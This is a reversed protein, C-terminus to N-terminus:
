NEKKREEKKAWLSLLSSLSSLPLIRNPEWADCLQLGNMEERLAKLDKDTTNKIDEEGFTREYSKEAGGLGLGLGGVLSGGEVKGGSVVMDEFSFADSKRVRKAREAEQFAEYDDDAKRKAVESEAAIGRLRSSTRRPGAPEEEKIKPVAAKKKNKNSSSPSDRLPNKAKPRPPLGVGSAQANQTLKKLLNDREAINALRQKEFDSLEEM